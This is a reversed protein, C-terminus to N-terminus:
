CGGCISRIRRDLDRERRETQLREREFEPSGVYPTQPYLVVRDGNRTPPRAERATAGATEYRKVVRTRPRATAVRRPPAPLRDFADVSRVRANEIRDNLSYTGCGSLALAAALAMAWHGAAM